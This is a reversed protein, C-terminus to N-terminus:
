EALQRRVLVPVEEDMLAMRNVPIERPLVIQVSSGFCLAHTTVDDLLREHVRLVIQPREVPAWLKLLLTVLVLAHGQGVVEPLQLPQEHLVAAALSEPGAVPQAVDVEDGPMM